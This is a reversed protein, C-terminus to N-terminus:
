KPLFNPESLTAMKLSDKKSIREMLKCLCDRVMLSIMTGIVKMALDMKSCGLATDKSKSLKHRKAM